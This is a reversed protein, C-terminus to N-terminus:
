TQACMSVKTCQYLHRLSRCLFIEDLNLPNLGPHPNLLAQQLHELRHRLELVHREAVQQLANHQMREFSFYRERLLGQLLDLLEPAEVAHRKMSRIAM